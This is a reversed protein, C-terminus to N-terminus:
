IYELKLLLPMKSFYFDIMMM